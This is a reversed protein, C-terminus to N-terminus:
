STMNEKEEPMRLVSFLFKFLYCIKLISIAFLFSTDLLKSVWEAQGVKNFHQHTKCFGLGLLYQDFIGMGIPKLIKLIKQFQSQKWELSYSFSHFTLGKLNYIERLLSLLYYISPKERPPRSLVKVFFYVLSFINTKVETLPSFLFLFGIGHICFTLIIVNWKWIPIISIWTNSVFICCFFDELDNIKLYKKLFCIGKMCTKIEKLIGWAYAIFFKLYM